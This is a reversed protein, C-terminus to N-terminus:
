SSPCLSRWEDVEEQTLTGSRLGEAIFPPERDLTWTREAADLTAHRELERRGVGRHVGFILGCLTQRCSARVDIGDLAMAIQEEILESPLDIGYRALADPSGRDGSPVRMSRPSSCRPGHEHGAAHRLM